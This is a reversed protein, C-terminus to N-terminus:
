PVLGSLSLRLFPRQSRLFWPFPLLFLQHPQFLRGTRALHQQILYTFWDKKRGHAIILSLM